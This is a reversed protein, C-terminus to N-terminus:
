ARAAGTRARLLLATDLFLLLLAAALFLASLPKITAQGSPRSRGIQTEISAPRVVSHRADRSITVAEDLLTRGTALDALTAVFTAYEAQQIFRPHNLDIVTDVIASSGSAPSHVVVLPQETTSLVVQRGDASEQEPWQTASIWDVTFSLDGRTGAQSLWVPSSSVPKAANLLSRIQGASTGDESFNGRSCSVLLAADTTADVVALSPHTSLAHWLAPGCDPDVRTTLPDFQDLSITLQDDGILADGSSFSATLSEEAAAIHAQWQITQGPVLSLRTTQLVDNGSRLTVQRLDTEDGANSISILVDFAKANKISRRAALRTVASNETGVGFQIINDLSVRAAWTQIEQSAGDTLLWHDSDTTLVPMSFDDLYTKAGGQWDESNLSDSDAYLRMQGPNTLSRLRIESWLSEKRELEESLIGFMTALRSNGNEITFVSPSDDIWVSLVRTETSLYPGSLAIILLAAALARRRWAPEPEARRSGAIENSAAQEWLFIASVPWSSLPAHWRHLWRILPIIGLAILWLPHFFGPM